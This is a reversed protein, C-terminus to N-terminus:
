PPGKEIVIAAYGGRFAAPAGSSTSYCTSPTVLRAGRFLRPHLKDWPTLLDLPSERPLPM